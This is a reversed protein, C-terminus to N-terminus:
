LGPSPDCECVRVDCVMSLCVVVGREAFSPFVLRCLSSANVGLPVCVPVMAAM